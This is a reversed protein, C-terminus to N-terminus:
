HHRIGTEKAGGGATVVIYSDLVGQPTPLVYGGNAVTTGVNKNNLYNLFPASCSVLDGWNQCALSTKDITAGYLGLPVAQVLTPAALCVGLLSSLTLIKAANM